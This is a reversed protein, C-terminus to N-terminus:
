SPHFGLLSAIRRKCDHACHHSEKGHETKARLLTFYTVYWTYQMNVLCYGELTGTIYMCTVHIASDFRTALQADSWHIDNWRIDWYVYSYTQKHQIM